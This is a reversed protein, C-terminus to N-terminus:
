SRGHTVNALVFDSGQRLLEATALGDNKVRVPPM